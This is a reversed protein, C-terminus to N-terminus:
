GSGRATTDVSELGGLLKLFDEEARPVCRSQWLEQVAWLDLLVQNCAPDPPPDCDDADCNCNLEDVLDLLAIILEKLCPCYPDVGDCWTFVPDHVPPETDQAHAIPACVDTNVTCTIPDPDPPTPPDQQALAPIALLMLSAFSAFIASRM